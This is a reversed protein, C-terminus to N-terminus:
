RGHEEGKATIVERGYEYSILNVTCGDTRFWFGHSQKLTPDLRLGTEARLTGHQGGRLRRKHGWGTCCVPSISRLQSILIHCPALFLFSFIHFHSDYLQKDYQLTFNTMM